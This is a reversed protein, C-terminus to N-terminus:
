KYYGKKGIGITWFYKAKEEEKLAWEKNEPSGENAKMEDIDAECADRFIGISSELFAYCYPEESRDVEGNNQNSLIEILDESKTRFPNIGYVEIEIKEPFPGSISEIFEISKSSDLVIRIELDKYFLQNEYQSTPKGLKRFLESKSTGFELTEYSGIQIGVLPLLTIKKM